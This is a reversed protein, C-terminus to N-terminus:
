SVTLVRETNRLFARIAERNMAPSSASNYASDVQKGDREWDEFRNSRGNASFAPKVVLYDHSDFTRRVEEENTLEEYMKEGPKSGIVVTEIRQADFGFSPAREEIMVAALDEIRLVNMKTVIV